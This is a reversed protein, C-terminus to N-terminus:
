ALDLEAFDTQFSTSKNLIDYTISTVVSNVASKRYTSGVDVILWGLEVIPRVQKYGIDVTQRAKGYWESAARAFSSLRERDDRVFGGSTKQLEGNTIGVVTNPVVYDLRCDKVPIILVREQEGDLPMSIRREIRTKESMELTMTVWAATFDIAHNKGPYAGADTAAPSRRWTGDRFYIRDGVLWNTVGDITTTTSASTSIYYDGQNGTGDLITPSNGAADWTGLDTFGIGTWETNAIFHQHGGSVNLQVAPRDHHARTSVSWKRKDPADIADGDIKDLLEWTPFRPVNTLVFSFPKRFPPRDDLDTVTDKWDDDEIHDDSYDYRERLPLHDLVTVGALWTECDEEDFEGNANWTDIVGFVRSDSPTNEPDHSNLDWDEALAFRSFVHAFKDEARAKQNATQKDKLNLDAYWSERSAGDYYAQQEAPTWDADLEHASQNLRLSCTVTRWDGECIVRHYKTTITNNLEPATVDFSAEFDLSYQDPNANLTTGKPMNITVDSFSFTKLKITETEDDFYVRYGVGRQRQILEDLVAKVTRRDTEVGGKPLWDLNGSDDELSASVPWPNQKDLLYTVAQEANWEAQGRERYSFVYGLDGVGKQWIGDRFLAFDGIAWDDTGDLDTPGAVTVEYYSGEVGTSSTLTPTNTTANWNGLLTEGPQLEDESRNGHEAFEGRSDMNFALGRNITHFEGTAAGNVSEIVTSTIQKREALYLLGYMTLTQRGTSVDTANGDPHLTETACIGYWKLATLRFWAGDRFVLVDGVAWDDIGDLETPTSDTASVTYFDGDNGVGSSLTPTNTSADWDGLNNTGADWWNAISVRVFKGAVDLPTVDEFETGGPQMVRGYHWTASAQDIEPAATMRLRDLYCNPEATWTGTLSDSFEITCQPVTVFNSGVATSIVTPAPPSPPAAPAALGGFPGGAFPLLAPM